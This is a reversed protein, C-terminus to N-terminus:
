RIELQPLLEPDAGRRASPTQSHSAQAKQPDKLWLTCISLVCHQHCLETTGEGLNVSLRVCAGM